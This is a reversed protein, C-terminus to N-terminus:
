RFLGPHMDLAMMGGPENAEDDRPLFYTPIVWATEPNTVSPHKIKKMRVLYTEDDEETRRRRMRYQKYGQGAHEFFSKRRGSNGPGSSSPISEAAGTGVGAGTGAASAKEKEEKRWIAHREVGKFVDVIHLKTKGLDEHIEAKRVNIDMALIVEVCDFKLQQRSFPPGLHSIFSELKSLPIVGSCTPDFQDKAWHDYFANVHQPKIPADEDTTEHLSEMATMIVGVFLNIMVFSVIATFSYFYTYVPGPNPCGNLPVCDTEQPLRCWNEDYEPNVECGKFKTMVSHMFGNWNEGTCFRFLTLLSWGLNQFHAHSDLDDSLGTKAFLKVGLGM